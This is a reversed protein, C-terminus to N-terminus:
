IKTKKKIDPLIELEAQSVSQKPGGECQFILSGDAELGIAKAVFKRNILLTKGWLEKMAECQIRQHLKLKAEAGGWLFFELNKMFSNQLELFLNDATSEPSFERLAGANEVEGQSEVNVGWGVILSTKKLECLIGAIKQTKDSARMGYLDNPWKLFCQAKARSDLAEFLSLGALLSVYSSVVQDEPWPLAVSCLLAGPTNTWQRGLRGRGETQKRTRVWIATHAGGELLLKELALQQTSPCEELFISKSEFRKM